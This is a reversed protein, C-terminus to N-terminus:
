LASISGQLMGTAARRQRDLKWGPSSTSGNGNTAEMPHVFVGLVQTLPNVPALILLAAYCRIPQMRVLKTAPKTWVLLCPSLPMWMSRPMVKTKLIKTRMLHGERPSLLQSYAFLQLHTASRLCVLWPKAAHLSSLHALAPVCLAVSSKLGELLGQTLPFVFLMPWCTFIIKPPAEM